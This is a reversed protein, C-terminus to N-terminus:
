QALSHVIAVQRTYFAITDNVVGTHYTLFGSATSFAAASTTEVRDGIDEANVAFFGGKDGVLRGIVTLSADLDDLADALREDQVQSLLSLPM